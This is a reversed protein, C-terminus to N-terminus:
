QGVDSIKGKNANPDITVTTEGKRYKDLVTNRRPAYVPEEARPQVLDTPNEVMSALARQHACGFNWYERNENHERELSPGIDRPWVGCPGAHAAMRPYVLRITALKLPSVPQYPRTEIATPPVSAAALISRIEPITEAASRENPTGSPVEVIIGGTAERHWAHAFALVDARQPPLLEGRRAGVLIQVTRDTEKIAIPHRTRYDFPYPDPEQRKAYDHGTYCGSLSAGLCLVAAARAATRIGRRGASSQKSMATRM